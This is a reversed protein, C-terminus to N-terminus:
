SHDKLAVLGADTLYWDAGHGARAKVPRRSAILGRRKLARRAPSDPLMVGWNRDVLARLIGDETMLKAHEALQRAMYDSM